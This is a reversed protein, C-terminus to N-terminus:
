NWWNDDLVWLSAESVAHGWWRYAGAGAAAGATWSSQAQLLCAHPQLHVVLPDTILVVVELKGHGALANGRPGGFLTSSAARVM